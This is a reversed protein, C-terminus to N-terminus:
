LIVPPPVISCKNAAAIATNKPATTSPIRPNPQEKTQIDNKGSNVVTGSATPTSCGMCMESLMIKNALMQFFDVGLSNFGKAIVTGTPIMKPRQITVDHDDFAM